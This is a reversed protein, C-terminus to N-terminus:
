RFQDELVFGRGRRAARRAYPAYRESTVPRLGLLPAVHQEFAEAGGEAEADFSRSASLPRYDPDELAQRTHALEHVLISLPGREGPLRPDVHRGGGVRYLGPAVHVVNEGRVVYARGSRPGEGVAPEISPPGSLEPKWEQLIPNSFREGENPMFRMAAEFIDRARASYRAFDEHAPHAYPFRRSGLSPRTPGVRDWGPSPRLMAALGTARRDRDPRRKPPLRKAPERRVAPQRRVAAQAAETARAVTPHPNRVPRRPAARAAPRVNARLAERLGIQARERRVAM